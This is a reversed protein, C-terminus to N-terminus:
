QQRQAPRTRQLKQRPETNARRQEKTARSPDPRPDNSVTVAGEAGETARHRRKKEHHNKPIPRSQRPEALRRAKLALVAAGTAKVRNGEYYVGGLEDLEPIIKLFVTTKKCGFLQELQAPGFSRHEFPIDNVIAAAGVEDLEDLRPGANHGIGFQATQKIMASYRRTAERRNPMM